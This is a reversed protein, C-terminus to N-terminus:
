INGNSRKKHLKFHEEKNNYTRIFRHINLKRVLPQPVNNIFKDILHALVTLIQAKHCERLMVNVEM